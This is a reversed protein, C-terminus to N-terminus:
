AARGVQGVARLEDPYQARIEQWRQPPVRAFATVVAPDFQRGAGSEIERVVAAFEQAQRYPRHSLIADMTDAVALIRAEVSILEGALGSPYGQGDWREHHQLVVRQAVRLTEFGELIRAGMASHQRMIVWEEPTLAAPKSLIADPVGIKGVDHLLAGRELEATARGRLGLEEALILAYAAVRRCHARTERTRLDLANLLAEAMLGESRQLAQELRTKQDGLTRASEVVARQAQDHDTRERYTAIGRRILACLEETKWPKTIINAVGHENIASMALELDCGGTIVMFTAHPQIPRLQEILSLGDIDPMRYDTAIVAFDTATALEMAAAASEATDASFGQRSMTRMFARLIAADDDVFLVRATESM